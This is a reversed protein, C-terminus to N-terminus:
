STLQRNLLRVALPALALTLAAIYAVDVLLSWSLTGYTLSRALTVVHYLPTIWIAAQLYAPLREVPFFAGSFFFM